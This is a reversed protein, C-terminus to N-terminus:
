RYTLMIDGEFQIEIPSDKSDTFRKDVPSVVFSIMGGSIPLDPIGHVLPPDGAFQKRLLNARLIEGVRTFKNDGFYPLTGSVDTDRACWFVQTKNLRDFKFFRKYKELAETFFDRESSLEVPATKQALVCIEHSTSLDDATKYGNQLLLKQFSFRTFSNLHPLFLITSLSPDGQFRPLSALIYDGEKQLASSLRIVEEPAYTHEIVNNSYMVGFPRYAGLATQVGEGEFAGHLVNLGFARRAVEARHPSAEMGFVREFGLRKFQDLQLGFGAGIDCVPKQKNFRSVFREIVMRVRIFEKSDSLYKKRKEHMLEAIYREQDKADKKSGDWTSAYFKDIWEKPPKDKYGVYGCRGCCAVRLMKKGQNGVLTAITRFDGCTNPCDEIEVLPVNGGVRLIKWNHLERFKKLAFSYDPYSM